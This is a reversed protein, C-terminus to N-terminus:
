LLYIWWSTGQRHTNLFVFHHSLAYKDRTMTYVIIEIFGFSSSVLLDFEGGDGGYIHRDIKSSEEASIRVSPLAIARGQPVVVGFPSYKAATQRLNNNNNSSTTLYENDAIHQYHSTLLFTFLVAASVAAPLRYSSGGGGGGDGINRKIRM